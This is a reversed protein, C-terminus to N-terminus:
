PADRRQCRQAPGSRHRSDRVCRGIGVRAAVFAFSLMAAAALGPWALGSRDSPLLSDTCSGTVADGSAAVPTASTAVTADLGDAAVVRVCVSQGPRLTGAELALNTVGRTAGLPRWTEGGDGSVDVAYSLRDPHPYDVTWHVRLGGDTAVSPQGLEPSRGTARVSGLVAGDHGVLEVETPVEAFPVSGAFFLSPAVHGGSRALQPIVTLTRGGATRVKLVLEGSHEPRAPFPAQDSAALPGFGVQGDRDVFGTILWGPRRDVRVPPLAPQADEGARGAKETAEYHADSEGGSDTGEPRALSASSSGLSDDPWRAGFQSGDPLVPVLGTSYWPNAGYSMFDHAVLGTGDPSDALTCRSRGTTVDFRAALWARVANRRAEMSLDDGSPASPTRPIAPDDLDLDGPGGSSTSRPAPAWPSGTPCPDYLTLRGGDEIRVGVGGAFGVLRGALHGLTTTGPTGISVPGPYAGLAGHPFMAPKHCDTDLTDFSAIGVVTALGGTVVCGGDEGHDNGIHRRDLAAHYTEQAMTGVTDWDAATTGGSPDSYAPVPAFAIGGLYDPSERDPWGVRWGLGTCATLAAGSPLVALLTRERDLGFRTFLNRWLTQCDDLDRVEIGDISLSESTGLYTFTQDSVANIRAYPLLMRTMDDLTRRVIATTPAPLGQMAVRVIRLDLTGPEAINPLALRFQNDPRHVERDTVPTVEVALDLTHSTAALETVNAPVVFNLTGGWHSRAALLDLDFAGTDLGASGLSEFVRIQRSCVQGMAAGRGLHDQCQTSNLPRFELSPHGTLGDWVTLRGTVLVGDAPPRPDPAATVYVRVVMPKGPIVPLSLRSSPRGPWSSAPVDGAQGHSHLDTYVVDQFGQNYEVGIVRLDVPRAPPPVPPLPPRYRFRAVASAERGAADVARITVTYRGARADLVEPDIRGAVPSPGCRGRAFGMGCVGVDTYIPGSEHSVDYTVRVVAASRARVEFEVPLRPRTILAEAAPDTISVVPGRGAPVRPDTRTPPESPGEILEITLDDIALANSSTMGLPGGRIELAAVGGPYGVAFPQWVGADVETSWGDVPDGNRDLAEGFVTARGTHGPGVLVFGSVRSAPAPLTMVIPDSAFENDVAPLPRGVLSGGHAVACRYPADPSCRVAELGEPFLVSGYQDTIVSGWPVSTGDPFSEFGITDATQGLAVPVVVVSAALGVLVSLVRVMRM